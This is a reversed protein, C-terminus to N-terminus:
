LVRLREIELFETVWSPINIACLDSAFTAAAFLITMLSFMARELEHVFM